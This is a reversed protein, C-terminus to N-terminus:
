SPSPPQEDDCLPHDARKKCFRDDDCLPHDPRKKCFRDDDDDDCLRHDPRRECVLRMVIVKVCLRHTSHWRCFRGRHAQQPSAKPNGGSKLHLPPAVPVAQAPPRAPATSASPAACILAGVVIGFLLM